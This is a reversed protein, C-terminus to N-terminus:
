LHVKGGRNDCGVRSEIVGRSEDSVSTVGARHLPRADPVDRRLGDIATGDSHHFLVIKDFDVNGLATKSDYANPFSRHFRFRDFANQRFAAPAPDRRWKAVGPSNQ